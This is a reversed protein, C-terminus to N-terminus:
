KPTTILTLVLGCLKHLLLHYYFSMFLAQFIMCIYIERNLM